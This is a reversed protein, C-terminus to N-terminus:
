EKRIINSYLIRSSVKISFYSNNFITEWDIKSFDDNTLFTSRYIKKFSVIDSNYERSIKYLYNTLSNKLSINLANEIEEINSEETYNFNTESYLINAEPFIEISILPTNDILFIKIRSNKYKKIELDIINPEDLTIYCNKVANTIFLHSITDIANLYGVYKEGKFVAIGDAQIISDNSDVYIAIPERTSNKLNNCFNIFSADKVM